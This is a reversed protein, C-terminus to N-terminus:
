FVSGCVIVRRGPRQVDLCVGVAVESPLFAVAIASLRMLSRASGRFGGRSALFSEVWPTLAGCRRKAM